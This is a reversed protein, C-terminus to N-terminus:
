NIGTVISIALPFRVLLGGYREEVAVVTSFPGNAYPDHRYLDMPIALQMQDSRNDIVALRDNPITSSAYIGGPFWGTQKLFGMATLDYRNSMFTGVLVEYNASSLILCQAEYGDLAQIRARAQRIHSILVGGETDTATSWHTTGGGFNGTAAEERRGTISFLGEIGWGADGTFSLTNEQGAIFRRATNAKQIDPSRGVGRDARLENLTIQWGSVISHVNQFHRTIDVDVLPIDNALMNFVKALGSRSLVDYGIVEAWEPDDTKLPFVQRALLEAAKAEYLVNDYVELESPYVLADSRPVILNKM